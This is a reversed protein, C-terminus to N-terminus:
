VCESVKFEKGAAVQTIVTSKRLKDMADRMMDMEAKSKHKRPIGDKDRGAKGFQTHDWLGRIEPEALSEAGGDDVAKLSTAIVKQGTDGKNNLAPNIHTHTHTHAHM